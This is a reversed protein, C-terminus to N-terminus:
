RQARAKPDLAERVVEGMMIFSLVTITLAISPYILTQPSTRLDAQAQSIDNGWSMFSNPLGVGLYSLTAEATIAGALAITTIVVVPTISNPLVHKVLIKFRSIGIATAAMVYDSHKVRLVESRLVRATSPWAFAGIALAIVPVSRYASFVSMIVVAALIYPIAFFIDGVRSLVSDLWGGYFGALAGVIVGVISTMLIVLVGVTLSTSTGHVIRSFVDCGQKTYGLPHGAEPAGNSNELLCNNNPPEATFLWPFLAVFTILLILVGSVYFLPRRRADRWADLWLNSPKGEARVTDVAGLTDDEFPAVYHPLRTSNKSPM